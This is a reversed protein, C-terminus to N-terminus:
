GGPGLGRGQRLGDALDVVVALRKLPGVPLGQLFEYGPEGGQPHIEDVERAPMIGEPVGVVIGAM